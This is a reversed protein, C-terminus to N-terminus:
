DGSPVSIKPDLCNGRAEAELDLRSLLARVARVEQLLLNLQPDLTTPSPAPGGQPPPCCTVCSRSLPPERSPAGPPASPDPSLRPATAPSAGSSSRQVRIRLAPSRKWVSGTDTAVECRYSGSDGSRAAPIRHEPSGDWGRVTRNDRYFSFRLRPDPRRPDPRTDCTLTLPSGETPEASPTAKLTPPPFPECSVSLHFPRSFLYGVSHRGIDEKPIGDTDFLSELPKILKRKHSDPGPSEECRLTVRQGPARSPGSPPEPKTAPAAAYGSGLAALSLFPSILGGREPRPVQSAGSGLHWFGLIGFAALGLPFLM